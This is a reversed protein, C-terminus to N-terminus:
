PIFSVSNGRCSAGTPPFRASQNLTRIKQPTRGYVPDGLLPHGISAMHVRIQHTRGTELRCEVVSAERMRELTRFHTIAHKGRGDKVVAMKKRDTESRGIAASISAALPMPHGAVVARYRRVISHDAFQRALGEHAADSKAVVLM